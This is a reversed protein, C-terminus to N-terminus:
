HRELSVYSGIHGALKGSHFEGPLIMRTSRIADGFYGGPLGTIGHDVNLPIFWEHVGSDDVGHSREQNVGWHGRGGSGDPLHGFPFIGVHDFHDAVSM